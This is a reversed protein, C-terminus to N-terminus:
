GARPSAGAPKPSVEASRETRGRADVHHEFWQELMMLVWVMVGYYTAHSALHRSTLEDIFEARVVGRRKLKGLSDLALERLARHKELWVGFPLGFGHKSKAIIEEPLFGRLALKFFYRLKTGKLKLEPALHASFAVVREDLMPFSCEIGALDCMRTVKPLDNDAVTYKLDLALMRNILADAHARHYTDAFQEAPAGVDVAALFEEGFIQTPGVREVLNYSDFRAPMPTSALRVYGRVQRVGPTIGAAPLRSAVPEVLGARLWRPLRSYLSLLYQTAYRVNGGFLEDGGDGGLMHTIGESAALRACYYAPVASANGFPQDYAQAVLPIASVVDDPTVYYEFQRTGFHRAAIRAYAMEDYGEADFGISFTKAPKRCAETLLGAITSSDTGGSLFAGVEGVAAADAVSARLDHVFREKLEPFPARENEFYRMEWYPEVTTAGRRFLTYTGPLLRTVGRVVSRPGPIMHFYVYDFLAQRDLEVSVDPHSAIAAVSSGFVVAGGPKAAYALSCIGMRDVALLIEGHAEDILALAFAGELKSLAGVGHAEYATLVSGALGVRGAEEALAADAWRPRGVVGCFMHVAPAEGM